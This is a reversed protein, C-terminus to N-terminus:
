QYLVTLRDYSSVESGDTENGINVTVNFGSVFPFGLAGNLSFIAVNLLLEDAGEPSGPVLDELKPVEALITINDLTNSSGPGLFVSQVNYGLNGPFGPSTSFGWSVAVEAVAQSFNESILTLNFRTDPTLTSPAAIGVLRASALSATALTAALTTFRM